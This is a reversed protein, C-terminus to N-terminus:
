IGDPLMSCDVHTRALCSIIHMRYRLVPLCQMNNNSGVLSSVPLESSKCVCAHTSADDRLVECPCPCPLVSELMRCHQLAFSTLKDPLCACRLVVVPQTDHHIKYARAAASVFLATHYM